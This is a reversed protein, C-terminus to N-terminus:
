DKKKRWFVVDKGEINLQVREYGARERQEDANLQRQTESAKDFKPLEFGANETQKVPQEKELPTIISANQVGTVYQDIKEKEKETEESVAREAAAREREAKFPDKVDEYRRKPRRRERLRRDNENVQHWINLMEDETKYKEAMKNESGSTEIREEERISSNVKENELLVAPEEFVIPQYVEEQPEKEEEKEQSEDVADNDEFALQGKAREAYFNQTFFGSPQEDEVDEDDSGDEDEIEEKMPTHMGLDSLTTFVKTTDPQEHMRDNGPLDYLGEDEQEAYTEASEEKDIDFLADVGTDEQTPHVDELREEEISEEAGGYLSEEYDRFFTDEEEEGEPPLIYDAEGVPDDKTFANDVPRNMAYQVWGLIGIFVILGGISFGGVSGIYQTFQGVAPIPVNIGLFWLTPSADSTFMAYIANTGASISNYFASGDGLSAVVTEAVPMKGGNIFSVIFNATMGVAMMISWFDDLNFILMVLILIYSVFNVVPLFSDVASIGGTYYYLHLIAQLIVGIIGLPLLSIKKARFGKVSGGRILGIIIGLIIAIVIFM